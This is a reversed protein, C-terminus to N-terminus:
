KELNRKLGTFKARKVASGKFIKKYEEETMLELQQRTLTMFEHSPQLEPTTNSKAFKNWPCALQCRDCGYITNGMKEKYQPPIDGRNEITQYSLCRSSDFDQHNSLAGTPCAETCQHCNGCRNKQPHDYIFETDVLIEGLFFYSGAHPIILQHNRGIWGLGAKVAWYRELIPATDCFVRYHESGIEAALQRLKEKMIVHYDKGYAYYAFQYQEERLTDQPFYNLAVSIISKVGDMLLRPDLRKDKNNALYNMDAYNETEIWNNFYSSTENDVPAAQAIGIHSFGLRYAKAKIKDTLDKKDSEGTNNLHKSNM